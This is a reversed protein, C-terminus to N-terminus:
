NSPSLDVVHFVPYHNVISHIEEASPDSSVGFYIRAERAAARTQARGARHLYALIIPTREEAPIEELRVARSTKRHTLVAHGGAARVNRVWHSEGTLSVLYQQEDHVVRVLAVRHPKGSLRGPVELVVAYGPGMGARLIPPALSQLRRYWGPPPRYRSRRTYDVVWRPSKGPSGATGSM